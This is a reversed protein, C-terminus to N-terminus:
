GCRPRNARLRPKSLSSALPRQRRTDLPSDALLETTTGGRPCRRPTTRWNGRGLAVSRRLSLWPVLRRLYGAGAGGDDRMPQACAIGVVASSDEAVLLWSGPKLLCAELRAISAAQHPWVGHRRAFNSETFVAVAAGFDRIMQLSFRGGLCAGPSRASAQVLTREDSGRQGAPDGWLLGFVDPWCGAM